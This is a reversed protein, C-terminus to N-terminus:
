LDLCEIMDSIPISGDYRPSNSFMRFGHGYSHDISKQANSCKRPASLCIVEFFWHHVPSFPRNSCAFHGHGFIVQRYVWQRDDKAPLILRFSEVLWDSYNITLMKRHPQQAHYPHVGTYASSEGPYEPIRIVGMGYQPGIDAFVLFLM